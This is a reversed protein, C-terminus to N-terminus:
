RTRLVGWEDGVHVLGPLEIRAYVGFPIGKGPSMPPRYSAVTKLTPFDAEGTVPSRNTVRCRPVQGMIRLIAEGVSVARGAWTDEEYPDCGDLELNM